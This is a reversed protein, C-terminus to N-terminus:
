ILSSFFVRTPAYNLIFRRIGGLFLARSVAFAATGVIRVGRRRMLRWWPSKDPDWRWRALSGAPEEPNLPLRMFEERKRPKRKRVEPAAAAARQRARKRRRSHDCVADVAWQEWVHEWFPDAEM